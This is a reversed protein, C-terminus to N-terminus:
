PNRSKESDIAAAIVAQLEIAKRLRGPRSVLIITGFQGQRLERYACATFWSQPWEEWQWWAPHADYRMNNAKKNGDAAYLDYSQALM